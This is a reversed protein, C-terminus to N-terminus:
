ILGTQRKRKLAHLLAGAHGDAGLKFLEQVVLSDIVLGDGM